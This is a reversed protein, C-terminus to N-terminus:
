MKYVLPYTIIDDFPGFFNVSRGTALVQSDVSLSTIKDLAADVATSWVIETALRPV